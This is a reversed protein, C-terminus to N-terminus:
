VLADGGLVHHEREHKAFRLGLEVAQLLCSMLGLRRLEPHHEQPGLQVGRELLEQIVSPGLVVDLRHM